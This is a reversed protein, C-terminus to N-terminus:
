ENITDCHRGIIQYSESLLSKDNHANPLVIGYLDFLTYQLRELSFPKALNAKLKDVNVNPLKSGNLWFLLPVEFGQKPGYETSHGVYATKEGLSQAHDSLYVVSAVNHQKAQKLIEGVIYDSYLISNDYANFTAKDFGADNRRKVSNPAPENDAWHAFKEPFRQKYGPHSGMMHLIIIQNKSTDQLSAKLAPLLVEDFDYGVRYDRKNLFVANDVSVSWFSVMSGYGAGPQNSIWHTKFGADKAISVLTPPAIGDKDFSIEQSSGLMIHAISGYTAHWSSCADAAALMQMGQPPTKLHPNTERDYGYISMHSRAASEGLIIIHTAPAPQTNLLKAGSKPPISTLLKKYQAKQTYVDGGTQVIFPIPNDLSFYIKSWGVYGLVLVLTLAISAELKSFGVTIVRNSLRWSYVALAIMILLSILFIALIKGSAYFGLFETAEMVDTDLLVMLSPAALLQGYVQVHLLSATVFLICIAALSTFLTKRVREPFVFLAFPVYFSFIFNFVLGILIRKYFVVVNAGNTPLLFELLSVPVMMLAFVSGLLFLPILKNKKYM